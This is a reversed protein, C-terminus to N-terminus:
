ITWDPHVEKLKAKAESFLIEETAKRSTLCRKMAKDKRNICYIVEGYSDDLLGAILMYARLSEMSNDEAFFRRSEMTTNEEYYVKVEDIPKTLLLMFLKQAEVRRATKMSVNEKHNLINDIIQIAEDYKKASLYQYVTLFNVEATYPTIEDFVKVEINKNGKREEDEIRLMENFAVRNIAKNGLLTLRYGDNINDLQTPVIQYIAIMGGVALIIIPFYNWETQPSIFVFLLVGVIAEVLYLMTGLFLYPKPNSDESKPVIKTEGVFGDYSQFRFKWKNENNRYFNCWLINVSTINYKGLKAGIVHGLEFIIANFIVGGLIAGLVFGIGVGIEVHYYEFAPRIICLGIVIAVVIMLAYVLLSALENKKM